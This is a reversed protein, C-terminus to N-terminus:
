KIAYLTLDFYNNDQTSVPSLNGVTLRIIIDSGSHSVVSWYARGFNVHQQEANFM